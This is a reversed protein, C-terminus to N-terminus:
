IWRELDVFDDSRTTWSDPSGVAVLEIDISSIDPDLLQKDRKDRDDGIGPTPSLPSLRSSENCEESMKRIHWTRRARGEGKDVIIGVQRLAVAARKVQGGIAQPSTPWHKPIQGEPTLERLLQASTGLWEGKADVLDVVAQAVPDAEIVDEALEAGIGLFTPLSSWGTVTDLAALVRAFDAMRPMEDLDVNPLEALVKAALDLLGGLIEAHASQFATDVEAETRRQTPDIRELEVPLLREALDGRLAGSDISTMVICRRFRTVAPDGDSYLRRRVWGDGTVARCLADSLWPQISSINDLVVVWSGSANTAWADEHRPASRLPAGTPDIVQGLMKGATSKGTGQEGFLALIPHPINPMLSCVLWGVLLWWGRESANLLDRLIGLGPGDGNERPLPLENTLETRKFPFPSRDIVEWRGPRLEVAAGDASGLDVIIRGREDRGVRLPLEVAEAQLAEGELVSLADARAASTPARHFREFYTSALASSISGPGGRLSRAVNPGQRDIAYPNGTDSVGLDFRDHGLEVLETAQSKKKPKEDDDPEALEETNM